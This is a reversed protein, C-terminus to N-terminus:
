STHGDGVAELGREGPHGSGLQVSGFQQGDPQGAGAGPHEGDVVGAM